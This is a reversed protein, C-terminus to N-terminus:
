EITQGDSLSPSAKGKAQPTMMAERRARKLELLQLAKKKNEEVRRRQATNLKTQGM